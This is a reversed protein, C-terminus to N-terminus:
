ATYCITDGDLDRVEILASLDCLTTCCHSLILLCDCVIAPDRPSDGPDWVDPYHLGTCTM